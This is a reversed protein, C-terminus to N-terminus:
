RRDRLPRARPPRVSLEPQGGSLSANKAIILLARRSRHTLGPGPGIRVYPARPCDPCIGDLELRHHIAAFGSTHSLKVIWSEIMDTDLPRDCGCRRCVLHHQHGPTPRLKYLREGSPRHVLDLRGERDLEQLTRYITTLGVHHGQNRM